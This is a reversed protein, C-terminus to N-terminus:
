LNNKRTKYILSIKKRQDLHFKLMFKNVIVGRWNEKLRKTKYIVIPLRITRIINEILDWFFWWLYKEIFRKFNSTWSVIDLWLNIHHTNLSNSSLNPLISLIWKNHKYIDEIQEKENYLPVLHALWYILYIDTQLLSINYLNLQDETVYFSLCYKRSKNQKTRKLWLLFFLLVSFFRARRLSNQKTIIFLDIDSDKELKNFTISNCLYITKIFPLSKFLWSHKKIIELYELLYPNQKDRSFDNNIKIDWLYKKECLFYQWERPIPYKMIEYFLLNNKYNLIEHIQKKYM